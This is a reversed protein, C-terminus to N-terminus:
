RRSEELRELMAAHRLLRKHLEHETYTNWRVRLWFRSQAVADKLGKLTMEPLAKLAHVQKHTRL